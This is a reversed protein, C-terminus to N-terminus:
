RGMMGEVTARAERAGAAALAVQALDRCFALSVEALQTGVGAVAVAATSLSTAGLGTLVCALLPDAASEGCVGVPVDAQDGAECVRQILRLVAPQWPDTLHSLDPSLRDAAMTYQALDNTGVSVFDLHPLLLDAMLAAAPVEIMAGPRLGRERCLDAFWAAEAVTAIMPAMVGTPAAAGRGEAAAAIADLQRLLLGEDGRAVRLGRRGLAPNAEPGPDAYALPKDSGADLTRIIVRAAPFADLVRRYVRTQEAVTPERAASLFSLETRYLGIGEAQTEAAARAAPADAVNALLEVRHGDATRAPGRWRALRSARARSREVLEHAHGAEPDVTVTGAAGDVLLMSDAPIERWSAGLAVICPLNLQRAIIATHGTPGGLGTVLAVVQGPDLAATDAPSREEALLVVPAGTPLPGSEEEGRLRALVRDRIDRLDVVREAVLGGAAEFRHIFLDTALATAQEAPHGERIAHRVTRLWGRDTVMGATARLVEAAPGEAREARDRLQEAVAEAAALFRNQEAERLQEPLVGNFAPPAPRPRIRIVRAYAAGAVVGTGQLVTRPRVEPM